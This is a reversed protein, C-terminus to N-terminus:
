NSRWMSFSHMIVVAQLHSSHTPPSTIEWTCQSIWDGCWYHSRSSLLLYTLTSILFHCSYEHMSDSEFIVFINVDVIIVFVYCCCSTLSLGSYRTIYNNMQAPQSSCSSLPQTVDVSQLRSAYIALLTIERIHQSVRVSCRCEGRCWYYNHSLFLLYALPTSSWYRSKGYASAPEFIMFVNVDVDIVITHRCCCTLSSHLYHTIYSNMHAPQISCWLLVWMSM